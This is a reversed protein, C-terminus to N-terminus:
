GFARAPRRRGAPAEGFSRRPTLKEEGVRALLAEVQFMTALTPQTFLHSHGWRDTGNLDIQVLGCEVCTRRAIGGGIEGTKSYRHMGKKCDNLRAM